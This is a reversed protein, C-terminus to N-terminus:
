VPAQRAVIYRKMVKVVTANLWCEPPLSPKSSQAREGRRLHLHAREGLVETAKDGIEAQALNRRFAAIDGAGANGVTKANQDRARAIRLDRQDIAFQAM